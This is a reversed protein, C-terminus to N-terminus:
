TWSNNRQHQYTLIQRRTIEGSELTLVIAGVMAILLLVSILIFMLSFDSYISIGLSHIQDLLNNNWLWYWHNESFEANFYIVILQSTLIFLIPFIHYVRSIKSLQLIDLMMIVFLFLIAIAGVYIIILMLGIFEFGISVLLFASQIFVLVLWFVSHIPNFSTITM